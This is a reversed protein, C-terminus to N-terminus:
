AGKVMVHINDILRTTGLRAAILLRASTMGAETQVTEPAGHGVHECHLPAFDEDRVLAVYDLDFGGVTQIHTKVAAVIGQPTQGAEAVDRGVQLAAHLEPAHAREAASLYANRSSLALGDEARVIGVSHIRVPIDLDKVVQRIVALQQADKQGFLAVDPRIILMAKSVVLAVGAFHTPRTAGELFHAVPGPDVTIQAPSTYVEDIPPAWVLDAGVTALGVVDADLTRPYADFDEGPAFQTPNVFITVVVHDALTRAERVLQLHGEHLAGMTMVLAVSGHLADLESRLDARTHVVTPQTTM